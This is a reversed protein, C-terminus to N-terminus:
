DKSGVDAIVLSNLMKVFQGWNPAIFPSHGFLYRNILVVLCGDFSIECTPESHKTVNM